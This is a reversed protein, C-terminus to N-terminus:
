RIVSRVQNRSLLLVHIVVLYHGLYTIELSKEHWKIILGSVGPICIYLDSERGKGASVNTVSESPNSFHLTANYIFSM